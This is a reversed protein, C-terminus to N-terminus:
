SVLQDHPSEDKDIVSHEEVRPQSGKELDSDDHITDSTSESSTKNQRRRQAKPNLLVACVVIVGDLVIVSIYTISAIIDFERRFILSLLSFVGGSMDIAMFILSIGIVEKLRWIEIYQPIVGLSILVASFIGFFQLLRPSGVARVVFVMGSEFGAFVAIYLVLSGICSLLSWKRGYFMCQAWSIAALLGFLQPQLILPINLDQVIAYVGLFVASTAWTFMLLGSLGETSKERWSKWIQPVLQGTWLITGITGLANEAIHDYM